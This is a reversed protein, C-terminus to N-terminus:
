IRKKLNTKTNIRILKERLPSEINNLGITSLVQQMKNLIRKTIRTTQYLLSHM